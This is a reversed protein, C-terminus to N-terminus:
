QLFEGIVAIRLGLEYKKLGGFAIRAPFDHCIRWQEHESDGAYAVHKV